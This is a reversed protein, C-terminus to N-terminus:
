HPRPMKGRINQKNTPRTSTTVAAEILGPCKAGSIRIHPDQDIGPRVPKLSAPANQGPYLGARFVHM